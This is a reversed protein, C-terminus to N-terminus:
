DAADAGFLPEAVGSLVRIDEVAGAGHRERRPAGFLTQQGELWVDLGEVGREEDLGEVGEEDYQEELSSASERTGASGGAGGSHQEQQFRRHLLAGGGSSGSAAGAAQTLQTRAPGAAHGPLALATVIFLLM